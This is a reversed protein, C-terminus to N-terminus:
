SQLCAILGAPRPDEALLIAEAPIRDRVLYVGAQSRWVRSGSELVASIDVEVRLDTGPRQRSGPPNLHIHTRDGYLGGPLLGHIRISRWLARRTWHELTPPVTPDHLFIETHLLDDMVNPNSHGHTAMVAAGWDTDTRSVRFRDGGLAVVRRFTELSVGEFGPVRTLLESVPITGDQRVWGRGADHRLVNSLRRSIRVEEDTLQDGGSLPVAPDLGVRRLADAFDM